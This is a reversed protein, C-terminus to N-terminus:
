SRSGRARCRNTTGSTARWADALLTVIDVVVRGTAARVAERYPPMNTCELVITRVAPHAAVLARAAAVVDARAADLDMQAEDGLIRRQFECGPAVGEIPTGPPVGAAALLAPGLAASDITLVGPAPVAACGLLSSSIVPVPLALALERQFAVLFGCSTTIMAAGDDVLARGARLFPALLARDQDHVARKPSANGVIARRAPIGLTAFTEPNGIDGPPRPFRTDLMLIGLFAM